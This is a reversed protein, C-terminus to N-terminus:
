KMAAMCRISRLAPMISRCATRFTRSGRRDRSSARAAIPTAAQRSTPISNSDPAVNRVDVRRRCRVRLPQLQEDRPGPLRARETWGDWREWITTAGQTVPYLWGPPSTQLLLRYAVDLRGHNTLVPLLYPTGVFGTSLHNGRAEIDRVLARSRRIRKTATSCVSICCWCMLRRPRASSGAKAPSSDGGSRPACGNRSGKTTSSNPCM